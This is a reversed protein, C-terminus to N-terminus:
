SKYTKGLPLDRNHLPRRIAGSFISLKDEELPNKSWYDHLCCLRAFPTQAQCDITLLYSAPETQSM